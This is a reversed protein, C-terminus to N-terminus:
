SIPPRCSRERSRAHHAARRSHLQCGVRVVRWGGGGTQEAACRVQSACTKFGISDRLPAKLMSLTYAFVGQAEQPEEGLARITHYRQSSFCETVQQNSGPYCRNALIPALDVSHGSSNAVEHNAGADLLIPALSPSQGGACAWILPTNGRLDRSNVCAMGMILCRAAEVQGNVCAVGLPPLGMRTQQALLVHHHAATQTMNEKLCELVNCHGYAAAFHWVTWGFFMDDSHCTSKKEPLLDRVLAVNGQAAARSLEWRTVTAMDMGAVSKRSLLINAVYWMEQALGDRLLTLEDEFTASPPGALEPLLICEQSKLDQSRFLDGTDSSDSGCDFDVASLSVSAPSMPLEQHTPHSSTAYADLQNLHGVACSKPNSVPSHAMALDTADDRPSPLTGAQEQVSRSRNQTEGWEAGIPGDLEAMALEYKRIMIMLHSKGDESLNLHERVSQPLFDEEGLDKSPGGEVEINAAIIYDLVAKLDSNLAAIVQEQNQVETQLGSMEVDAARLSEELATDQTPKEHLLRQYTQQLGQLNKELFRIERDRAELLRHGRALDDEIHMMAQCASGAFNRADHQIAQLESELPDVLDELFKERIVLEDRLDACRQVEEDYQARLRLEERNVSKIQSELQGVRQCTSSDSSDADSSDSGITPAHDTVVSLSPPPKTWPVSSLCVTGDPQNAAFIMCPDQPTAKRDEDPSGFIMCRDKPPAEWDEDLIAGMDSCDNAAQNASFV